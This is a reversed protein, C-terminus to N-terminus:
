MGEMLYNRFNPRTEGEISSISFRMMRVRKSNGQEDFFGMKTTYTCGGSDAHIVGHSLLASKLANVGVVNQVKSALSSFLEEHMYLNDAKLFLGRRLNETGEEDLNPLIYVPSLLSEEALKYLLDLFLEVIGDTDRYNEADECLKKAKAIVRHYDNEESIQPYLFAAAGLLAKVKSDNEEFYKMKDYVVALEHAPPVVKEMLEQESLESLKNTNLHIEFVNEKYMAPIVKSFIFFIATTCSKGELVGSASVNFAMALKERFKVSSSIIEPMMVFVGRSNAMRIGEKAQSMKMTADIFVPKPSIQKAVTVANGSDDLVVAIPQNLTMGLEFLIPFNLCYSALIELISEM